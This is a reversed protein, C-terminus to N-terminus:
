CFSQFIQIWLKHVFLGELSCSYVLLKRILFMDCVYTLTANLRGWCTQGKSWCSQKVYQHYKQWFIHELLPNQRWFLSYCFCFQFSFVFSVSSLLISNLLIMWVSSNMEDIIRIFLLIYFMAFCFWVQLWVCALVFIWQPYNLVCVESQHKCSYVFSVLMLIQQGSRGPRSLPVTRPDPDPM